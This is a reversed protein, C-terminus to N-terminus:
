SDFPVHRGDQDEFRVHYCNVTSNNAEKYLTNYIVIGYDPLANTDTDNASALLEMPISTFVMVVAMLMSIVKEKMKAYMFSRNTRM